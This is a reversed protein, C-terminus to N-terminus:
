STVPNSTNYINRSGYLIQDYSYGIGLWSWWSSERKALLQLQTTIEAADADPPVVITFTRRHLRGMGVLPTIQIAVNAGNM